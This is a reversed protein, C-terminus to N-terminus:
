NDTQCCCCCPCVQLLNCNSLVGMDKRQCCCCIYFTVLARTRIYRKYEMVTVTYVVTTTGGAAINGLDIDDLCTVEVSEGNVTVSNVDLCFVGDLPVHLKAGQIENSCNNTITVTYTVRCCVRTCCTSCTSRVTIGCSCDDIITIPRCCCTRKLCAMIEGEM